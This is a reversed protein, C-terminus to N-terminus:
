KAQIFSSGLIRSGYQSCCDKRTRERKENHTRVYQDVQKEQNEPLSQSSVPLFGVFLLLSLLLKM